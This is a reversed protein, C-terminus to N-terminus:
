KHLTHQQVPPTKATAPFHSGATSVDHLQGADRTIASIGGCLLKYLCRHADCIASIGSPHRYINLWRKNQTNM